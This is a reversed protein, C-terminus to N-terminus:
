DRRVEAALSGDPHVLRLVMPMQGLAHTSCSLCPDYARIGAEVRNLVGDPLEPGEVYARAIDLITRNMALENQGTAIILNVGTMIGHEDVEYDHFLTGRPAESAGVGRRRNIGAEARVHTDLLVPDDLIGDIREISAIVELIRAHHYHFSSAAVRGVRDRFAALGEDAAPTGFREALNIRALPGVRYMGPRPDSDSVLAKWYPSKLYSDPNAAEGLYDRYDAPDLQDAVVEGDADVVRLRGELHEWTGDPACHGLYLSPFRGFVEVEREFRDQISVLLALTDTAATLAEDLGARIADRQEATFPEAVGGAVIGRGHIRQGTVAEVVEQGFQRLRIGRRVIDPEAQMLGFVNRQDAPADMGLLLDPASLHFFSLAHSQVIQGLNALRRQAIAAPPATVALIADSAKASAMLHSVPCIGCTRATLGPMEFLPRGRCFDEFGRFETVHFRADAVEGGEDLHLTIKAHGEIRSVPDIVHIDHM